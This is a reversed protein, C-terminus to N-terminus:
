LEAHKGSTVPPTLQLTARRRSDETTLSRGKKPPGSSRARVRGDETMKANEDSIGISDPSFSQLCLAIEDESLELSDRPLWIVPQEINLFPMDEGRGKKAGQLDLAMEVPAVPELTIRVRRQSFAAKVEVPRGVATDLLESRTWLRKWAQLLTREGWVVNAPSPRPGIAPNTGQVISLTPLHQLLPAYARKLMLQYILTCLFLLGMVVSQGACAVKNRENRVLLFLGTLYVEMVYLGIFLHNIAKYYIQGGTDTGIRFVYTINHEQVILFLAFIIVNFVLILPSIVSYILGIVALNTYVPYFTGWQVQQPQRALWQERPTQSRWASVLYSILPGWQLLAGASVSLGQLVMYSFFYNGAKPLSHAILAAVSEFDTHLGNLMAALSSSLSVVLFVQLFLFGFYYDQFQLEGATWSHAGQERILRQLIAPVLFTVGALLIPPLVGQLVGQMSKPVNDLWRLRPWVAVMYDLQSLIGTFAVPVTSALCLSVMLGGVFFRRFYREKWTLTLNRWLIQASSEEIHRCSMRHPLPHHVAQCAVQAGRPENFRILAAQWSGSQEDLCRKISQNAEALRRRIDTILDIKRSLIPVAPLWSKGLLPRRTYQRQEAPIYLRWKEGRQGGGHGGEVSTGGSNLAEKTSRGRVGDANRHSQVAQRIMRTEAGELQLILTERSHIRDLIVGYNRHLSIAKVGGPYPSYQHRLIEKAEEANQTAVDAPLDTVLVTASRQAAMRQQRIRTYTSAEYWLVRWVWFIVLSALGLHVWYLHTRTSAVNSWAFRDLGDTRHSGHGAIFNLPLLVPLLICALPIFIRLLM